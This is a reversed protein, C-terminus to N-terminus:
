NETRSKHAILSQWFGWSNTCNMIRFSFFLTPLNVDTSSCFLHYFSLNSWKKTYRDLLVSSSKLRLVHGIDTVEADKIQAHAQFSQGRWSNLDVWICLSASQQMTSSNDIEGSYYDARFQAEVYYVMAMTSHWGKWCSDQSCLVAEKFTTSLFSNSGIKSIM